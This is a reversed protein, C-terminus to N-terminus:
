SAKPAPKAIDKALEIVADKARRLTSLLDERDIEFLVKGVANLSSTARNLKDQAIELPTRKKAKPKPTM